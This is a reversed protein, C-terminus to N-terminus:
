ALVVACLRVLWQMLTVSVAELGPEDALSFVRDFPVAKLAQM